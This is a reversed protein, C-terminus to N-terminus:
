APNAAVAPAVSETAAGRWKAAIRSGGSMKFAVVRPWQMKGLHARIPDFEGPKGVITAFERPTAIGVCDAFAGLLVESRMSNIGAEPFPVIARFLEAIDAAGIALWDLDGAVFWWNESHSTEVRSAGLLLADSALREALQWAKPEGGPIYLEPYARIHDLANLPKINPVNAM